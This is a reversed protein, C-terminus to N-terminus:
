ERNALLLEDTQCSCHQQPRLNEHEVLRSGVDVQLRVVENLLLKALLKHVVVRSRDYDNRVPQCRNHVGVPDQDHRITLTHLVIM